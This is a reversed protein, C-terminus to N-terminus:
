GVMYFPPQKWKKIGKWSLEPELLYMRLDKDPEMQCGQYTKLDLSVVM